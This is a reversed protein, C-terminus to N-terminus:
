SIVAYVSSEETPPLPWAAGGPPLRHDLTAYMISSGDEITKKNSKDEDQPSMRGSRPLRTSPPTAKTTPPDSATGRCAVSKADIHLNAMSIDQNEIHRERKTNGKRRQMFIISICTIVIIFALAGAAFYIGSIRGAEEEQVSVNFAKGLSYGSESQCRYLGADSIQITTFSLFLTRDLANRVKLEVHAHSGNTVPVYNHNELKYWSVNKFTDKCTHNYTITCNIMLHKGVPVKFGNNEPVQIYPICDGGDSDSTTLHLLALVSVVQVTWTLTM